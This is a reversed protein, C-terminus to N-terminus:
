EVGALSEYIAALRRASADLSFRATSTQQAAALSRRLDADRVMRRLMRAWLDVEGPPTFFPWCSPPLIERYVPLDSLLVPKGSVIAELPALGFGESWSALAFLDLASLLEPIDRRWGLIRVRNEVGLEVALTELEERLPGDGAVVFRLSAIDRVAEAFARLLTEVDKNGNLRAITGLVISSRPFGWERLLAARGDVGRFRTADIGNPLVRIPLPGALRKALWDTPVLCLHADRLSDRCLRVAEEESLGVPLGHAHAIVRAGGQMLRRDEPSGPHFHLIDFPPVDCSKENWLVTDIGVWHSDAQLSGGEHQFLVTTRFRCRDLRSAWGLVMEQRGGPAATELVHLIRIVPPM